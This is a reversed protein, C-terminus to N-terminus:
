SNLFVEVHEDAVAEWNFVSSAREYAKQALCIMEPYNNECFNIESTLSDINGKKFKRATDLVAYENEEIDSVILPVNLGMVTLVVPSLGEVDSPQIYCYANSMLVNVDDGYIYGPFIVQSNAMDLIQKEYSSPNPSGGILVLKKDTHANKFAPILYHLGKDPIFRGVFLYYGGKQIGLKNLIDSDTNGAEVESGFPIFKFTKNFKEEFLKKAIVNDFIM